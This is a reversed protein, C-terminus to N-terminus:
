VTRPWPPLPRIGLGSWPAAWQTAILLTVLDQGDELTVSAVIELGYKYSDVASLTVPTGPPLLLRLNARAAKGADTSSEWANCGVLRVPLNRAVVDLTLSSLTLQGMTVDCRITDGDTVSVVTAAYTQGPVVLRALGTM